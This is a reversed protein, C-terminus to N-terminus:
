ITVKAPQGTIEEKIETKVSSISSKVAGFSQVTEGGKGIGWIAIILYLWNDPIDLWKGYKSIMYCEWLIFFYLIIARSIRAFSAANSSSLSQKIWEVFGVFDFKMVTTRSYVNSTILDEGAIV